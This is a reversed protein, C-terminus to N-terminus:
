GVIRRKCLGIQQFKDAQATKASPGIEGNMRSRQCRPMAVFRELCECLANLAVTSLNAFLAHSSAPSDQGACTQAGNQNPGLALTQSSSRRPRPAPGRGGTANPDSVRFFSSLGPWARPILVVFDARSMCLRHLPRGQRRCRSTCDRFPCDAHSFPLGSQFLDAQVPDIKALPARAKMEAAGAAPTVSIIKLEGKRSNQDMLHIAIRIVNLCVCTYM